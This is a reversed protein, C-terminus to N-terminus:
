VEEPFKIKGTEQEEKYMQYLTKPSYHWLKTEEDELLSYLESSYFQKIAMVEDIDENEVIEQIIMPMLIIMIAKFKKDKM